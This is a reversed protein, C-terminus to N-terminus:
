GHCNLETALQYGELAWLRDFANDYAIKQGIEENDNEASVAASPEGTVSFSNQMTLICWRLIKGSKTVHKVYEVDKIKDKLSQLTVRPATLGKEVIEKELGELATANKTM